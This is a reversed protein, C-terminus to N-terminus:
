KPKEKAKKLLAAADAWLQTFAKQEAASLKALAAADRIGALDTDQQWHTLIQVILPRAQPSGAALLKAWVTLEAKLWELAQRRLKAKAADDLPPDEQGQGAAALGAACAANYRHHAQRDDRLKPDAAFAKEYLRVADGYRKQFPQCCHFAFETTEAPTKPEVRGTIVDPLAAVLERM